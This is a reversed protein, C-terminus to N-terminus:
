LMRRKIMKLVVVLQMGSYKEVLKRYDGYMKPRKGQIAEVQGAREELINRDVDCMAVCEVGPVQLHQKLNSFGMGKCGIVGVKVQDSPAVTQTSALATATGATCSAALGTMGVATTKLFTRRSKM